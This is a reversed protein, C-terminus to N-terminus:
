WSILTESLENAFFVIFTLSNKAPAGLQDGEECEMGLGNCQQIIADDTIM